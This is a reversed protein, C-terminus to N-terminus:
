QFRRCEEALLYVRQFVRGERDELSHRETLGMDFMRRGDRCRQEGEAGIMARLDDAASRRDSDSTLYVYEMIRMRPLFVADTMTLSDTVARPLSERADAAIEELLTDDDTPEAESVAPVAAEPASPATASPAPDTAPVPPSGAPVLLFYGAAGVILIGVGLLYKMM